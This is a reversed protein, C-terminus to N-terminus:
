AAASAGALLEEVLREEAAAVSDRKTRTFVATGRTLDPGVTTADIDVYRVVHNETGCSQEREHTRLRGNVIVPM